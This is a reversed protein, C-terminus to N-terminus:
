GTLPHKLTLAETLSSAFCAHGDPWQVVLGYRGCDLVRANM